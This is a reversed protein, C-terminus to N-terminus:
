KSKDQELQNFYIEKRSIKQSLVTKKKKLVTIQKEIDDMQQNYHRIDNRVLAQKKEIINKKKM